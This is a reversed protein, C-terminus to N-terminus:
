VEDFISLSLCLLTLKLGSVDVNFVLEFINQVM